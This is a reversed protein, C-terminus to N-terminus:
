RFADRVHPLNLYVVVGLSFLVGTLVAGTVPDRLNSWLLMALNIAYVWVALLRGWEAQRALGIVIAASSGIGLVAYIVLGATEDVLLSIDGPFEVYTTGRSAYQWVFVLAIALVLAGLVNVAIIAAVGGPQPPKGSLASTQAPDIDRAAREDDLPPLAPNSSHIM